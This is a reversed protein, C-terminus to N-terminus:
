LNRGAAGLTSAHLAIDERFARRLPAPAFELQHYVLFGARVHRKDRTTRVVFHRDVGGSVHPIQVIVRNGRCIFGSPKLARRHCWARAQGFLRRDAPGVVLTPASISATAPRAM